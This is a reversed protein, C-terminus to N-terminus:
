WNVHTTRRRRPECIELDGAAICGRSNWFQRSGLGRPCERRPETIRILNDTLLSPPWSRKRSGPSADSCRSARWQISASYSLRVHAAPRAEISQHQPATATIPHHSPNTEARAASAAGRPNKM